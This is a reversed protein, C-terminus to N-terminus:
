APEYRRHRAFPFTLLHWLGVFLIAGILARILPVDWLVIDEHGNITIGSIVFVQTMLWIGILGAIIAGVFGFPIRSGIIAEAIIGVIAAVIVYLIVNLGFSWVHDGIKLVIGDALLM